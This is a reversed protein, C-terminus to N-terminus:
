HMLRSMKNDQDSSQSEITDRKKTAKKSSTQAGLNGDSNPTTGETSATAPVTKQDTATASVTDQSLNLAEEQDTVQPNNNVEELGPIGPVEEYEPENPFILKGCETKPCRNNNARAFARTKTGECECLEIKIEESDSM